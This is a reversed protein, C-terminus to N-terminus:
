ALNGLLLTELGRSYFTKREVEVLHRKFHPEGSVRKHHYSKVVWSEKIKGRWEREDKEKGGRGREEREEGRNDKEKRGRERERERM